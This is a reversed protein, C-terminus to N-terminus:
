YCLISSSSSSSGSNSSSSSSTNISKLANEEVQRQLAPLITVSKFHHVFAGLCLVPCIGKEELRRAIEDEQGVMPYASENLLCHFNLNHSSRAPITSPHHSLLHSASYTDDEQPESSRRDVLRSCDDIHHKLMATVNMGFFMGNFRGHTKYKSCM